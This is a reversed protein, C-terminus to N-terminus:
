SNCSILFIFTILIESTPMFVKSPCRGLARCLGEEKGLLMKSLHPERHHHVRLM